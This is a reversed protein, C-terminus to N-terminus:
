KKRNPPDEDDASGFDTSIGLLREKLTDGMGALVESCTERLRKEAAKALTDLVVQSHQGLTTASALLWSNSANELRGKYQEISEDTSKKLQEMWDRKEADRNAEWAEMLPSLQSQLYTRAQEVGETMREDLKAQFQELSGERNFEMDSRAKELADRTAREFRDLSEQSVRHIQDSFGSAAIGANENLRGRERDVVEKAADEIQAQSHEVYTRRYHDLESALLSSIEAARDRMATTSQEVSRELSSQMTTQAKKQYWESAKLLAEYTEHQTEVSKQELDAEVKKLSERCSEQFEEPFKSTEQRLRDLSEQVTQESVERVQDRITTQLHAAQKEADALDAVAKQVEELRPGLKQAIENSIRVVIRGASEEIQPELKEVRQAIVEDVKQGAQESQAALIENLRQRTQEVAIRSSEQVQEKASRSAEQLREKTEEARAQEQKLDAGLSEITTAAGAIVEDLVERLNSNRAAIDKELQAAANQSAENLTENVKQTAGTLAAEFEQEWRKSAAAVDAQSQEVTNLTENVKQTAGTLAAEFEQEWRKSAAAVDAQSQEVTQSRVNQATAELDKRWKELHDQAAEPSSLIGLSPTSAERESIVREVAEEVAQKMNQATAQQAAQQAAQEAVNSVAAEVAQRVKLELQERSMETAKRAQDVIASTRDAAEQVVKKAASESVREMSVKLAREVTEHLQVDLQQRVITMEETIAAEAGKRLTKDLSEKAEVVLRAMQRAMALQTDQTPAPNPMVHIKADATPAALTAPAAPTPFETAQAVPAQAIPAHVTPEPPAPPAAQQVAAPAEKEPAEILESPVPIEPGADGAFSVWDEPPFSIGWVNGPAEFELGIQFLERVTRPRQVWVVRGQISHPSLSHEPRPVELTIISNKPVYHKSQYKCGHCNVMVTTTREKFPQGLADVGTVTIPVAQVIRTSRRKQTGPDASPLSETVRGEPTL